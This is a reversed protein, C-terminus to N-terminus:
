KEVLEFSMKKHSQFFLVTKCCVFTRRGIYTLVSWNSRLNGIFSAGPHFVQWQLIWSTRMLYLRKSAKKPWFSIIPFLEKKLGNMKSVNEVLPECSDEVCERNIKRNGMFSIKWDVASLADKPCSRCKKWAIRIYLILDSDVVIM